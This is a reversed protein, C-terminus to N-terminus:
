LNTISFWRQSNASRFFGRNSPCNPRVRRSVTSEVSRNGDPRLKRFRSFFLKTDAGIRPHNDRLPTRQGFVKNRLGIPGLKGRPPRRSPITPLYFGRRTIKARDHAEDHSILVDSGIRGAAGEVTPAIKRDVTRVPRVISVVVAASSFIGSFYVGRARVSFRENSM